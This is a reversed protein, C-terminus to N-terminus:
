RLKMTENFLLLTSTNPKGCGALQSKVVWRSFCRNSKEDVIFRSDSKLKGLSHPHEIINKSKVYFDTQFLLDQSSSKFGIFHVVSNPQPANLDTGLEVTTVWRPANDELVAYAVDIKISHTDTAMTKSVMQPKNVTRIFINSSIKLSPHLVQVYSKSLQALKCFASILIKDFDIFVASCYDYYGDAFVRAMFKMDSPSQMSKHHGRVTNSLPFHPLFINSFLDTCPQSTPPDLFVHHNSLQYGTCIVVMLAFLPFVFM